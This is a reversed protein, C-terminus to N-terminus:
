IIGRREEEPIRLADLILRLHRVSLYEMDKLEKCLTSTPIGTIKALHTKSWGNSALGGGIIKTIRTDKENKLLAAKPM